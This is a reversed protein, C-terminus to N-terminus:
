LYKRISSKDGVMGLLYVKEGHVWLATSLRKVSVFRVNGDVPADKLTSRDVVFLWLDSLQGPPMPRGTRFCIMSVKANQWGEVACGTAFIKNLSPPLVYDSPAKSKALFLRIQEQDNTKLDMGYGRLAISAMEGRFIATTDDGPRGWHAFAALFFLVIISAAATLVLRSRLYDTRERAAQESIIQEKLGAPVNIQMFKSRLVEQWALQGALWVSLEPDRNAMELALAIEPDEADAMGPRYLVLIQKIEDQNM